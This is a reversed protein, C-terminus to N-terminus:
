QMVKSMENQNKQSDIIMEAPTVSNKRVFVILDMQVQNESPKDDSRIITFKDIFVVPKNRELYNLIAAFKDFTTEFSVSIYDESIYKGNFSNSNKSTERNKINFSTVKKDNAIQSINFILDPMRGSEVAYINVSDRLRNMRDVLQLRTQEQELQQILDCIQKKEALQKELISNNKQIPRLLMAYVFLFVLLCSIWVLSVIKLYYQDNPKM